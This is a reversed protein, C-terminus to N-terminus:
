ESPANALLLPLLLWTPALGAYLWGRRRMAERWSSVLFGRDYLLIVVPVTVMVRKSATGM